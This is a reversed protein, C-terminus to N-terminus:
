LGCPQASSAAQLDFTLLVPLPSMVQLDKTRIWAGSGKYTLHAQFPANKSKQADRPFLSSGQHAMM